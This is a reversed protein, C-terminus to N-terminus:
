KPCQAAETSSLRNLDAILTDFFQGRSGASACLLEESRCFELKYIVATFDPAPTMILHELAKSHASIYPDRQEEAEHVFEVALKGADQAECLPRIIEDSFGDMARRAFAEFAVANAWSTNRSM